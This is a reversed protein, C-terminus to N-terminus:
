REPLVGDTFESLNIGENHEYAWDLSWKGPFILYDTGKVDQVRRTDSTLKLDSPPVGTDNLKRIITHPLDTKRYEVGYETQMRFQLVDYQLMGVVGVTVREMGAGPEFFIQIAGEQAIQTMGKAFQKRKMSDIQEIVAFHEPTFTPIGAYRVKMGPECVTDGISFAGPDFIGIIDGAFAEDIGARDQAMMQQPQSLKAIKGSQVHFYERNRDFRGSCVRLFAIRDRHAKNMNAQIKFVFASFGDKVPDIVDEGSRRPLPSM